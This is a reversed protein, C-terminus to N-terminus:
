SDTEILAQLEVNRRILLTTTWMFILVVLGIVAIFFHALVFFNIELFVIIINGVLFIALDILLMINAANLLRVDKAIFRGNKKLRGAIIWLFILIIFCPASTLYYFASQAYVQIKQLQTPEVDVPGIITLSITFPYWVVVMILGIIFLFIIGIRVIISLQKPNINKTEM